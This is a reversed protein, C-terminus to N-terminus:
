FTIENSKETLLFTFSLLDRSDSIIYNRPLLQKYRFSFRRKSSKERGGKKRGWSFIELKFCEVVPIAFREAIAHWGM